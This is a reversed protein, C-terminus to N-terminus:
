RYQTRVVIDHALQAIQEPKLKSATGLNRHEIELAREALKAASAAFEARWERNFEAVQEQFEPLLLWNYITKPTVSVAGAAELRTGGRGLIEAALMQNPPCTMLSRDSTM